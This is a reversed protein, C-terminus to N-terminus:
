GFRRTGSRQPKTRYTESLLKYLAEPRLPLILNIDSIGASCSMRVAIFRSIFVTPRCEASCRGGCRLQCACGRKDFLSTFFQFRRFNFINQSFCRPIYRGAITVVLRYSYGAVTPGSVAVPSPSTSACLATINAFTLHRPGIITPGVIVTGGGIVIGGGITGGVIVTGGGM